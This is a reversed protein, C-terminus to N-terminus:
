RPERVAAVGGPPVTVTGNVPTSALLGQSPELLAWSVIAVSVMHVDAERM